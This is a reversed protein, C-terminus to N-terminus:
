RFSGFVSLSSDEPFCLKNYKSNVHIILDDSTRKTFREQKSFRKLKLELNLSTGDRHQNSPLPPHREVCPVYCVGLARNVGEAFDLLAYFFFPRWGEKEM